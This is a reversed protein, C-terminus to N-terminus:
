NLGYFEPKIEMSKHTITFKIENNNFIKSFNIDFVFRLEFTHFYKNRCDEIIFDLFFDIEHVDPKDFEYEKVITLQNENM